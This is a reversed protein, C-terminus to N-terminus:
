GNRWSLATNAVNHGELVERAKQLNQLNSLLNLVTIM